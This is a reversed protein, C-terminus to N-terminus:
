YKVRSLKVWVPLHDSYGGVYKNGVYTKNPVSEGKKNTYLMWSRKFIHAENEVSIGKKNPTLLSSSVIIQDFLDWGDFCISGEGRAYPVSLLDYLNCPTIGKVPSLAKLNETISKDTPNDNFDGLLIINASPHLVFISDVVHRVTKAYDIRKAETEEEKGARSKWHNVIIHLTDGGTIGCVYLPERMSGKSPDGAYVPIKRHYLEKFVDPRYLLAEDIGRPDSSHKHIIKYKGRKLADTNVLDKLVERNEVEALGIIGPLDVSDIAALVHAIAKIKASYKATNWNKVASPLYENDNAHPDDITDFLNETNYFAIVISTGSNNKSSKQGHSCGVLCAIFFGFFFFRKMLHLM